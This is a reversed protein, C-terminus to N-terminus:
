GAGLKRFDPLFIWVTFVAGLVDTIPFALWIAQQKDERLWLLLFFIPVFLILQRLLTLIFAKKVIGLAQYMSSSVIQFGVFLFCAVVMQMVAGTQEILMLDESFFSVLFTPYVRYILSIAATFLTLIQIGLLVVKKM